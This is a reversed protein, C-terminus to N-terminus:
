RTPTPFRKRLTKIIKYYEYIIKVFRLYPVKDYKALNRNKSFKISIKLETLAKRM